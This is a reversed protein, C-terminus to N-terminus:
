KTVQRWTAGADDTRVVVARDGELGAAYLRRGDASAAVASVQVPLAGLPAFTRGRDTSKRVTGDAAAFLTGDSAQALSM